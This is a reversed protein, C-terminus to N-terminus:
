RVFGAPEPRGEHRGHRAADAAPEPRRRWCWRRCHRGSGKRRGVGRRALTRREPPTAAPWAAVFVRERRHPAGVASASVVRYRGVYGLAALRHVVRAMAHGRNATLLGPVNELLLLEPRPDMAGVADAIDDFLWREDNLGARRGAASVPQCPFGATLVAVPPVRTWDVRTLDGLNPVGPHRHALLRAADPDNDAHWAHRIPGLVAAAAMDLAGTGTCLSGATLPTTM